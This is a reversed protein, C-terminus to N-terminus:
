ASSDIYYIGVPMGEEDNVSHWPEGDANDDTETVMFGRAKFERIMATLVAEAEAVTGYLTGEDDPTLHNVIRAAM